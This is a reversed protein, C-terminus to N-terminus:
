SYLPVEIVQYSANLFCKSSVDNTRNLDCVPDPHGRADNRTLPTSVPMALATLASVSIPVTFM